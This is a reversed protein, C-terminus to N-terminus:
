SDGGSSFDGGGFSSNDFYENVIGPSYDITGAGTAQSPTKSSPKKPKLTQAKITDPSVSSIVTTEKKIMRTPNPDIIYEIKTLIPKPKTVLYLISITALVGIIILLFGIDISSESAMLQYRTIWFSKKVLGPIISYFIM